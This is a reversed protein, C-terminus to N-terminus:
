LTKGSMEKSQERKIIASAIRAYTPRTVFVMILLGTITILAFGRMAGFGLWALSVMAAVTTAVAVFIVGFARSVRKKVNLVRVQPLGGEFIEDTIIIQHDVGTGVVIILGGLEPLGISWGLVSAAGLTIILESIMTGIIALGILWHRYRLYILIWVGFLAALGAILAEKMFEAGLRAEISTESEYTIEVPLRESLIVRLNNAEDMAEDLTSRTITIVLDNSFQNNAFAAALDPSISVISKLECARKVWEDVSEGSLKNISEVTYLASLNEIIDLSFDGLLIVKLKIGAQEELFQQAEPPIENEKIGIASVSIEYEIGGEGIGGKFMKKDPDYELTYLQNLIENEFVVIADSPRDVYILTPYNAKGAAATGFRVAADDTLRFPLNATQAQKMSPYPSEVSVIDESRLLVENEFFIELVGPKGLLTEAEEPSLGAIEFLVLNAGLARFQAGLLGNPDVRLGLISIVEDRTESTIAEEIKLVTGLDGIITEILNETVLRGIEAVAQKTNQDFSITKISVYLNDELNNVIETWASEMNDQNVEFTVHFAELKLVIRSGGIIDVGFRLGRTYQAPWGLAEEVKSDVAKWPSWVLMASLLIALLLLGIYRERFVSM